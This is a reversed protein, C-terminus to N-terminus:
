KIWGLLEIAKNLETQQKGDLSSIVITGPENPTYNEAAVRLYAAGSADPALTAAREVTKTTALKVLENTKPDFLYPDFEGVSGRKLPASTLAILGVPSWDFDQIVTQAKTYLTSVKKTGIDYSALETGKTSAGRIFGIQKGDPGFAPNSIGDPDNALSQENKGDVGSTVLAFGFTSDTNVFRTFALKSQEPSIAPAAAVDFDDVLTTSKGSGDTKIAVLHGRNDSGPGVVALISDGTRSIRSVLKIGDSQGKDSFILREKKTSVDISRIELASGNDVLFFLQGSPAGGQATTVAPPPIAEPAVSGTDSSASETNTVSPSVQSDAVPAPVGKSVMFGLGILAGIFILSIFTKM